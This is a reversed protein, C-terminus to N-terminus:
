GSFGDDEEVRLVELDLAPDEADFDRGAGEAVEFDVAEVEDFRAGEPGQAGVGIGAGAADAEDDGSFVVVEGAADRFGFGEGEDLAHHLGVAEGAAALLVPAGDGASREGAEGQNVRLFSFAPSREGSRAIFARRGCSSVFSLEAAAQACGAAGPE